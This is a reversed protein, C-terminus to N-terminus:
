RTAIGKNVVTHRIIISYLDFIWSFIFNRLATYTIKNKINSARLSPMIHKVKDDNMQSSSPWKRQRKKEQIHMKYAITKTDKKCLESVIDDNRLCSSTDSYLRFSYRSFFPYLTSSNETEYRQLFSREQKWYFTCLSRMGFFNILSHLLALLGDM